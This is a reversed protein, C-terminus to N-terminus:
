VIYYTANINLKEDTWDQYLTGTQNPGSTIKLQFKNIQSGNSPSDFFDVDYTATNSSRWLTDDGAVNDIISPSTVDKFIRFADIITITSGAINWCRISVYNTGGNQLEAFAVSWNTTFSEANLNSFIPYASWSIKEIGTQNPGTWVCYQATDLNSAGLKYFDVDYIQSTNIWNVTTTDFNIVVKPVTTDKKVFFADIFTTTNGAFDVARVDVYNIGDYLATFDISFNTIYYTTNVATAITSWDIIVGGTSSKARYFLNNLKSCGPIREPTPDDYFDIDWIASPDSTFWGRDTLENDVCRPVTTDKLIFFANYYTSTNGALDFVRVSVYNTTGDYLLAFQSATLSWPTTYSPENINTIRDTWEIIPPGFDEAVTSICIQFKSLLSGGTDNFQVNYTTGSSSRWTFDGDQLDNVTPLAVDKLIIFADIWTSTNGALDSVRISIYNTGNQLLNFNVGFNYNYNINNIPTIDLTEYPPYTARIVEWNILVSGGELPLTHVKYEITNLLSYGVDYFDIDYGGPKIINRWTLDGGSENNLMRPTITDIIISWTSSWNSYLGATNKARVRWYYLESSYTTLPLYCSTTPESLDAWVSFTVDTSIIFEYNIIGTPDTSDSWDFSPTPNNTKTNDAPSILTPTIPIATSIRVLWTSSWLCYNNAIDKARVRWYYNLSQLNYITSQSSVPASTFNVVGFYPDTSVQLEYNELGSHTDLVDTWDFTVTTSSLNAGDAPSIHTPQPPPIVDKRIFFADVYTSTNTSLDEARVTVYNAGNELLEWASSSLSWLIEYYTANILLTNIPTWNVLLTGTQGTSSWVRYYCTALKSLEDYFAVDYTTGSSNRWTYDGIVNNVITPKVTDIIVSCTTTWLCWNGAIDKTRVKWYHTGDTRSVSVSSVTSSVTTVAVVFNVDTSIVFQYNDVGSSGDASDSWDYTITLLNTTAGSVPSLLVPITPATTDKRVFFVDSKETSNKAGDFVRVSVYNIGEPINSWISDSLQWLSTYSNQEAFDAPTNDTWIIYVAGTQNTGSTIKVDFRNLKSGGTDYFDVDYVAGPNTTRWTTDDGAVPDTITPPVIDHKNLTLTACEHRLDSITTEHVTKPLLWESGTWNITTLDLAKDIIYCIMKNQNPDAALGLWAGDDALALNPGKPANSPSKAGGAVPDHWGDTESWGLYSITRPTPDRDYAVVICRGSDKEWAIDTCRSSNTEMTSDEPPPTAWSTGNWMCVNWDSGGDISTFGIYNSNPRPDAAIAVWNSLGGGISPNPAALTSWSSGSWISTACNKNAGDGWVVLCRGNQSEWALDFCEKTAIAASLTPVYTSISLFTNTDGDWLACFIDSNEDLTALMIQNSNPKPELRVWMVAGSTGTLTLTSIATVWAEATSSWVRYTIKGAEGNYFAILCRGSNQEYALDCNRTADTMSNTPSNLQGVNLWTTGDWRLLYVNGLAEVVYDRDGTKLITLKENRVVPCAVSKIFEFRHGSPFPVAPLNGSAEWDPPTWNRYNPVNSAGAGWIIVGDAAGPPAPLSYSPPTSTSHNYAKDFTRILFYYTSGQNLGGITYSEQKGVDSPTFPNNIEVPTPTTDDWDTPAENEWYRIVYHGAYSDGEIYTGVLNGVLGNDGPAIWTLEIQGVYAGEAANLSTIAYPKVTDPKAQIPGVSALLSLNGAVDKTKIAIYYNRGQSLGTIIKSETTGAAQPTWAQGFTRVNPDTDFNSETIAYTAFKVIYSQTGSGPSPDLPATWKLNIEGENTGTVGAIDTIQAPAVTDKKVYFVDPTTRLNGATDYCRVSVYNYGQFLSPFDISWDTEYSSLNLNTFIETWDKVLTGTQAPGTSVFYEAYDLLSSYDYFDVNYTKGTNYWTEDDVENDYITPATTDKKVKFVETITSTNGVIDFARVSVYNADGEVMNDFTIDQLQWDTDFLNAPPSISMVTRWPDRQIGTQGTESYVITQFYSVGSLLDKFDVDYIGNNIRRWVTEDAQNDIVTPGSIDKRIFFADILTTINGAFDSARVSVYNTGEQLLTWHGAALQWDTLYYTTGLSIATTTWSILNTGALGTATWVSYEFKNLKDTRSASVKDYADIDYLRSTNRWTLDGGSENNVLTPPTTDKLVYFVYYTSINTAIDTLRVHVFNTTYEQLLSFDLAWHTTYSPSSIGTAITQWDLIINSPSFDTVVSSKTVCYEAKSLWSLGDYFDIDYGGPRAVSRWTEDGGAAFENYSVTALETDKKVYFVNNVTTTNGAVDWVRVSVYNWSSKCATFDIQWNTNYSTVNTSQFIYTWPIIVEDDVNVGARVIYEASDLGGGTDNFYVAYGASHATNRWTDDGPEQDNVTPATIDVLTTSEPPTTSSPPDPEDTNDANDYVIIRFGYRGESTATFSIPNITTTIWLTYTYPEETQLTYYLKVFKIGSFGYDTATYPVNFTDTSSYSPATATGIPPQTDKLIYFADTVTTTSFANDIVRVSIYNTGPLLLEFHSNLLQFNDTYSTTGSITTGSDDWDFAFPPTAAPSTGAKLQFKNLKSGGSDFFDIDYIGDNIRRWTTDGEQLDAITPPITDKLVFFADTVTSINDAFDFVRISIYNTLECLLSVWVSEPISWDSVYSYTNTTLVTTWPCLPYLTAGVSSAIIQFEKVGSGSTADKFDVNYVGNNVSRWNTDGSQNNVITPLTTDKLVYFADTLSDSNYGLTPSYSNDFVRISVYSKGEPLLSWTTSNLPWPTTYSTAGSIVTENTTWDQITTGSGLSSSMVKTEFKQLKSGGADGFFVNYYGNNIRRWTDDGLQNDTITPKTVDKLVYFVNYSTAYQTLNDWARVSVYCTTNEPLAAFDVTFDQTYSVANIDSAISTWAKIPTGSQDTSSYIAYQITHLKSLEDEFDVDYTTGPNNRWQDDGTQNDYITPPSTDITLTYPSPYPSYNGSKDLARVRWYYVSQTLTTALQNIM